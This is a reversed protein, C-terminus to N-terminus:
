GVMERSKNKKREKRMSQLTEQQKADITPLSAATAADVEGKSPWTSPGRVFIMYAFLFKM